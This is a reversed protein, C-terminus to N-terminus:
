IDFTSKGLILIAFFAIVTFVIIFYLLTILITKWAAQWWSKTKYYRRLAVTLYLGPMLFLILSIWGPYSWNPALMDVIMLLSWFIWLFTHFHVTFTLHYLYHYKKRWFFLSLFLAFIPVLLFTIYPGYKVLYNFVLTSIEENRQKQSEKAMDEDTISASETDSSTTAVSTETHEVKVINQKNTNEFQFLMLAFILLTSMWFLKVPHVYRNIKGAQFENSLFGPRFMLFVLTRPTKGDLSFANELMQGFLHLISQETGAFVNQGCEHCYQGVTEAGCNRCIHDEPLARNKRKIRKM